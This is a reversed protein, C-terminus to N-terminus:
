GKLRAAGTGLARAGGANNAMGTGASRGARAAAGDTVTLRAGRSVRYAETAHRQGELNRERHRDFVRDLAVLASSQPAHQARAAALAAEHVNPSGSLRLLKEIKAKVADLNTGNM